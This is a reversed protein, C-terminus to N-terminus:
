HPKDTFIRYAIINRGYANGMRDMTVEKIQKGYGLLVNVHCTYILFTGRVDSTVDGM